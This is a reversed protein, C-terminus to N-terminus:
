IFSSEEVLSDIFNFLNVQSVLSSMFLDLNKIEQKIFRSNGELPFNSAKFKTKNVIKLRRERYCM